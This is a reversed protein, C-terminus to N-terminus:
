PPMTLAFSILLAVIVAASQKIVTVESTWTFNPLALNVIVGLQSIFLSYLAPILLLMSAEYLNAKLYFGLVIANIVSAGLTLVLNVGAKSMLITRTPVPLSKLISLSKGELSISCASTCSMSVMLALLFPLIGAMSNAFGPMELVTEVQKAGFVMLALTLITMLILGVATNLVYLASSFFRRMEKNIMSKLPTNVQADELSYRSHGRSATLLSRLLGFRPAILRIVLVFLLAPALTFIALSLINGGILAQSYYLAPHYLRSLQETLALSISGLRESAMSGSVGFNLAMLALFAILTLLISLINSHKFRMSILQIVLGLLVGLLLPLLPVFLLTFLGLLYFGISASTMVGYVVLAPGLVMATFGLNTLYLTLVRSGLLISTPIPMSALIDYDKFTFLLNTSKYVTTILVVVSAMFMMLTPLASLGGMPKLSIGLMVSYMASTGILATLGIVVAVLFWGAKRKAKPDRGRLAVNLGLTNLAYNRMLLMLKNM